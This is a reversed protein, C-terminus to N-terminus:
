EVVEINIKVGYFKELKKAITPDDIVQEIANYTPTQIGIKEAAQAQTIGGADARLGKLTRRRTM